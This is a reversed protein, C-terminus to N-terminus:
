LVTPNTADGYVVRPEFTKAAEVFRLRGNGPEFNRYFCSRHGIQCNARDSHPRAQVRVRLWLADQDDDIRMEVMQRVLGSTALAEDSAADATICPPLGDADFEPTREFGEEVQEASCRDAFHPPHYM